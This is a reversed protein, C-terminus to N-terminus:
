ENQTNIYRTLIPDSYMAQGTPRGTEDENVHGCIQIQYQPRQNALGLITIVEPNDIFFTFQSQVVFETREASGSFVLTKM